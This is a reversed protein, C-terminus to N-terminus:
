AAQEATVPHGRKAYEKTDRGVEERGYDVEEDGEGDARDGRLLGIYRRTVQPATGVLVAAYESGRGEYKLITVAIIHVDARDSVCVARVPRNPQPPAISSREERSRVYPCPRDGM